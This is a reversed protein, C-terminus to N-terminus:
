KRVFSTQRPGFAWIAIADETLTLTAKDGFTMKITKEPRGALLCRITRIRYQPNPQIAARIQIDPSTFLTLGHQENISYGYASLEAYLHDFESQTLDLTVSIIKRFLKQQEPHQDTHQPEPLRCDSDPGVIQHFAPDHETVWTLLPPVHEPSHSSVYHLWPIREYGTNFTSLGKYVNSGLKARLDDYVIDIQGPERTSFCIGANGETEKQLEPAALLEICTNEGLLYTAPAPNAAYPDPTSQGFLAFSERIFPSQNIADMTEADLTLYIYNLRVSPINYQQIPTTQILPDTQLHANPTTKTSSCGAPLCLALSVALIIPTRCM